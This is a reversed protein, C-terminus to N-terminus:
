KLYKFSTNLSDIIIKLPNLLKDLKQSIGNFVTIKIKKDNVKKINHIDNSNIYETFRELDVKLSNFNEVDLKSVHIIIPFLFNQIKWINNLNEIGLAMLEVHEGCKNPVFIDINGDDKNESICKNAATNHKEIDNSFQTIYSLFESILNIITKKDCGQLTKKMEEKKNMLKKTINFYASNNEEKRKIIDEILKKIEDGGGKLSSIDLIVKDILATYDMVIKNHTKLTEKIDSATKTKTIIFKDLNINIVDLIKHIDKMIKKDNQLIDGGIQLKYIIM